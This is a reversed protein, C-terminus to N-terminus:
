ARCKPCYTARTGCLDPDGEEIMAIDHILCHRVNNVIAEAFKRTVRLTDLAANFQRAIRRMDRAGKVGYGHYDLVFNESGAVVEVGWKRVDNHNDFLIKFARAKM